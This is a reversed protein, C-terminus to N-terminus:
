MSYIYMREISNETAICEVLKKFSDGVELDNTNNELSEFDKHFDVLAQVVDDKGFAKFGYINNHATISSFSDNDKCKTIHDVIEEETSGIICDIMKSNTLDIVQTIPTLSYYPNIGRVRNRDHTCNEKELDIGNYNEECCNRPNAFCNNRCGKLRPTIMKEKEKNLCTSCFTAIGRQFSKCNPCKTTLHWFYDVKFKKILENEMEKSKKNLDPKLVALIKDMTNYSIGHKYILLLIKCYLVEDETLKM